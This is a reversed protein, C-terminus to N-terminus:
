RADEEPRRRGQDARHHRAIVRGVDALGRVVTVATIWHECDDCHFTMLELEPAHDRIESMRLTFNLGAIQALAKGQPNYTVEHPPIAVGLVRSMLDILTAARRRKAAEALTGAPSQALEREYAELARDRLDLDTTSEM